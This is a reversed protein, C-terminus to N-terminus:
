PVYRGSTDSLTTVNGLADQHYYALDYGSTWRFVPEDTAAGYAM